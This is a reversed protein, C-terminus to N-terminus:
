TPWLKTVFFTFIYDVGGNHSRSDDNYAGGNRGGNRQKQYGGNHGQSWHDSSHGNNSQFGRQEQGGRHQQKHYGSGGGGGQHFHLSITVKAYFRGKSVKSFLFQYFHASNYDSNSSARIKRKFIEFLADKIEGIDKFYKKKKFILKM